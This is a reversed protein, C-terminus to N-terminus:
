RRRRKLLEGLPVGANFDNTGLFVLIADVEGPHATLLQEGQHPVDKWERGSVATVFPTIQLWDALFEWYLKVGPICNPDTISDGIYGVKRGQWAHAPLPQAGAQDSLCLAVVIFVYLLRKM